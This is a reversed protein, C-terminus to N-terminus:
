SGYIHCVGAYRREADGPPWCAVEICELGAESVFDVMKEFPMDGLISTILGLKM